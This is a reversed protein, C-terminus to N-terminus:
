EFSFEFPLRAQPVLSLQKVKKVQEYIKYTDAGMEEKMATKLKASSTSSGFLQNFISEPEPYERLRYNDGIKAMRAACDIADQLGGLRDVLGLEIARTGSWVRGQGISDIFAQPKKRGTAVRNTFTAYISDVETQLWKKQSESLPKVISLADADPATKVADFTMGIRNNLFKEMNPLISFVGISGTITNPQAFISDANCALYYGGSAAVDGFSLIVPKEKKALTLERWINESAMASGGGSNIRFVIAKISKDTRARRVLNMYSESGISEREGKGDVINGQAYIVMIKNAGTKKFTIAKAYKGLPVFNIKADASAKMLQNMEARVEDEYKLGDLLKLEVAKEPTTVLNEVAYRRLSATDVGRTRSTNLLFAGYLDNLLVTSQLRNAETMQTERFPETASKFKGAYFIQPEIELKQLTGKIFFYSMSYGRWDLGGKPHCYIKDAINAVYYGGQTVVDAYAIIFKKSKKFKMLANRIEESSGFGNSNSGCKLYIGKISSDAVASEIMRVVDFLGPVDYEDGGNLGAFPVEVGIEPFPKSLDVVLVANNGTVEKNSSGIGALISLFILVGILTFVLLALFSALIMKLFSRM